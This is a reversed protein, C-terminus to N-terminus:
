VQPDSIDVTTNLADAAAKEAQQVEYARVHDALFERVKRNVFVYKDEPNSILAPNTTPDEPQSADFDPNDVEAQWNYNLAVATMVREVDEDAIAISFQAM